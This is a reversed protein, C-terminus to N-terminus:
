DFFDENLEREGDEFETYACFSCACNPHYPPLAVGIDADELPVREGVYETCIGGCAADGIIEVYEIGNELYAEKTAKSYVAMTETRLLRAAKYAAVGTLQRFFKGMQQPSWGKAYGKLIVARLRMDLDKSNRRIRQLFTRRDECWPKVVKQKVEEKPKPIFIKTNNNVSEYTKKRVFEYEFILWSTLRNTQLREVTDRVRDLAESIDTIYGGRLSNVLENFRFASVATKPYYFPFNENYLDYLEVLLDELEELMEGEEDKAMELIEAIIASEDDYSEINHYSSRPRTKEDKKKEM